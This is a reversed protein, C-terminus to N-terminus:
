GDAVEEAAAIGIGVVRLKVEGCGGGDKVKWGSELGAAKAKAVGDTEKAEFFVFDRDMMMDEFFCERNWFAAAVLLSILTM